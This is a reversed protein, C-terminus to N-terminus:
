FDALVGDLDLWLRKLPKKYWQLRDDGEPYIKYYATLFHANCLLHAAHLEGTEKDYDEGREVAALHRKLSALVKSWAMGLEWNRPAYKESGKTLIKVLQEDAFPHTLDYRLKGQNYRLGKDENM